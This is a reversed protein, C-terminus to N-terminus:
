AALRIIAPILRDVVKEDEGSKLLISEDSLGEVTKLHEPKWEDARPVITLKKWKAFPTDRLDLAMGLFRESQVVAPYATGLTKVAVSQLDHDPLPLALADFLHKRNDGGRASVGFQVHMNPPPNRELTKKVLAAVREEEIVPGHKLLDHMGTTACQAIALVAENVTWPTAVITFSNNAFSAGYRRALSKMTATKSETLSVGQLFLEAAADGGDHVLLRDTATIEVYVTVYRNDITKIPLTIVCAGEDSSVEVRGGLFALLSQKISRCDTMSDSM